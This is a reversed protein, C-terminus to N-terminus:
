EQTLALALPKETKGPDTSSPRKATKNTKSVGTQRYKRADLFALLAFSLCLFPHMSEESLFLGSSAASLPGRREGL